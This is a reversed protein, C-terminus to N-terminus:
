QPYQASIVPIDPQTNEFWKSTKIWIWITDSAEINVKKINATHSGIDSNSHSPSSLYQTM